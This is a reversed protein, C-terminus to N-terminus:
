PGTHDHVIRWGEPTKLWVLTFRGSSPGGAEPARALAFRGLLLATDATLPRVLDITFTLEGMKDRTPYNRRYRLLVEDFGRTLGSSGLFTTAPSRQYASMFADIDGRNWAAQKAAMLARLDDEPSAAALLIPVLFFLRPWRM